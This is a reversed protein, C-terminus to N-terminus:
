TNNLLVQLEEGGLTRKEALRSALARLREVNDSLIQAARQRAKGRLLEVESEEEIGHAYLLNCICVEDGIDSLELIHCKMLDQAEVGAFCVAMQDILPLHGIDKQIDAGGAWHNGGVGIRLESISLGLSHAVVAHGAEHCATSM